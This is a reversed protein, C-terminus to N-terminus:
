GVSPAGTECRPTAVAPTSARSRCPLRVLVTTGGQLTSEVQLLGGVNRVRESMGQLGWGGTHRSSDFGVGDDEISLHLASQRRTLTVAVNRARAHKVINTLSEQTVRYLTSESEDDFREEGMQLVLVEALIGSQRSWDAVIGPLAGALGLEDLVVPRLAAIIDDLERDVETTLRDLHQVLDRLQPDALMPALANLALKLATLYQGLSDHLERAIRRREDEQSRSLQHLLEHQLDVAQALALSGEDVQAEFAHRLFQREIDTAYGFWRQVIDGRREMPSVHAVFRHYVGDHRRLRFQHPVLPNGAVIKRRWARTASRDEPHVFDMDTAHGTDGTFRNWEASRWEVRGQADARWLIDPVLDSITELQAEGVELATTRQALQAELDGNRDTLAAINTRAADIHALDVPSLGARVTARDIGADLAQAVAQILLARAPSAPGHADLVLWRLTRAGASTKLAVVFRQTDIEGSLAPLDGRTWTAPFPLEVQSAPAACRRARRECVELTAVHDGPDARYVCALGIDACQAVVLSAIASPVGALNANAAGAEGIAVLCRMYDLAASPSEPTQASAPLQVEPASRGCNRGGVPEVADPM